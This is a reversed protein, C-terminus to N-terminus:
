TNQYTSWIRWIWQRPIKINLVTYPWQKQMLYMMCMTIYWIKKKHKEQTFNQRLQRSYCINQVALKSFIPSLCISQTLSSDRQSERQQATNATCALVAHRLLPHLQGWAWLEEGCLFNHRQGPEEDLFPHVLDPEGPSLRQDPGVDYVDNTLM